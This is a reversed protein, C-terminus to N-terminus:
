KPVPITMDERLILELAALANWAVQTAHRVAAPHKPDNMIDLDFPGEIEEKIIHRGLADRYRNVGDSVKEWGKWSYKNAGYQSLEAVARVARPFYAIVGQYIPAKGADLKSGPDKSAKGLPDREAPIAKGLEASLESFYPAHKDLAM